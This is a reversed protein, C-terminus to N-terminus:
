YNDRQIFEEITEGWAKGSSYSDYIYVTDNLRNFEFMVGDLTYISLGIHSYLETSRELEILYDNVMKINDYEKKCFELSNMNVYIYLRTFPEGDNAKSLQNYLDKEDTVTIPEIDENHEDPSFIIKETYKDFASKSKEYLKGVSERLNLSFKYNDYYEDKYTNYSVKFDMNEKDSNVLYFETEGKGKITGFSSGDCSLNTDPNKVSEIFTINDFKEDYKEELYKQIHQEGTINNIGFSFILLIMILLVVAISAVLPKKSERKIPKSCIPCVKWDEELDCNCNKCKM